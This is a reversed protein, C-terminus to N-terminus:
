AFYASWSAARNAMAIIADTNWTAYCSATFATAIRTNATWSITTIRAAPYAKASWAFTINRAVINAM